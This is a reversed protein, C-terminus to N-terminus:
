RDGETFSTNKENRTGRIGKRLIQLDLGVLGICPHANSTRMDLVVRGERSLQVSVGGVETVAGRNLNTDETTGFSRERQQLPRRILGLRNGKKGV